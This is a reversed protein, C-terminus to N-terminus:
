VRRFPVLLFLGHTAPTGGTAAVTQSYSQGVMGAALSPTTITLAPGIALGLAQTASQAAPTTTDLVKVVFAFTGASTPTGSISGATSLSLGTPLSGSAVSWTYPAAGGSAALTQSYPTTALGAPLSSTTVALGAALTLTLSQTATQATPSTSDTAKVTFTFPGNVTPTGSLGGGPTLTLGTALSGTSITWTYPATGGTAALIQAYGSDAIGNPM